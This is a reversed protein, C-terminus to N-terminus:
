FKIIFKTWVWIQGEIFIQWNYLNIIRKVLFLGVWFWEINIDFRSFKKWVEELKEKEIWNWNDSIEIRDNYYNFRIEVLENNFKISNSFLNEFLVNFLIHDMKISDSKKLNTILTIKKDLYILKLNDIIDNLSDQLVIKKNVRNISNDELRSILFMTELLKNLKKVDKKMDIFVRNLDLTKGKELSKQSLDIRSNMVMLPTKFEHSVDTIFQKQIDSQKKIKSLSKSLTEYLIMIEDDKPLKLDLNLDSNELNIKSVEKSINKLNKLTVRSIYRGFFYNIVIFLFILVLSIKSIILQSNFYPTTDYLISVEGIDQYDQTFVFYTKSDITYFLSNMIEKIKESDNHVKLSVWASCIMESWNHPTIITDKSLIYNKFAEKNNESKESNYMDYNINMDYLSEKKIDIYWLSFYTINIALLLLLLSIFNFISFTLSIKDSTKLKKIKM